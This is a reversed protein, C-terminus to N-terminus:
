ERAEKDNVLREEIDKILARGKPTLKLTKKRRDERNTTVAILHHGGSAMEKHGDEWYYVNRSAPGSLMGVRKEIEQVSIDRGQQEADAIELLTLITGIQMKHDISNFVRNAAIYRKLISAM